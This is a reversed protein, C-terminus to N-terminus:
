FINTYIKFNVLLVLSIVKAFWSPLAGDRAWAWTIRSVSALSAAVVCFTVVLLGVVMATGAKSGAANFCIPIIPYASQLVETPDGMTFLLVLIIAYSLVGNIIITWIMARPVAQKAKRVEESM